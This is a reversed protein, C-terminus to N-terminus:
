QYALTSYSTNYSDPRNVGLLLRDNARRADYVIDVDVLLTDLLRCMEILQAWDRNNRALRAIERAAIAGIHGLCVQAVLAQFGIRQPALPAASHGLDEDIIEVERWGFSRLREEMAYQLRRSEHHQVVQQPSSQRVYLVAKRALHHPAIRPDTM